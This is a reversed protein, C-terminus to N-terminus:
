QDQRNLMIQIVVNQQQQGKDVKVQDVTPPIKQKRAQIKRKLKDRM